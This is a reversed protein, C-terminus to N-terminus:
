GTPAVVTSAIGATRTNTLAIQIHTYARFFLFYNEFCAEQSRDASLTFLLHLCCKFTTFFCIKMFKFSILCGNILGSDNYDGLLYRVLNVNRVNKGLM